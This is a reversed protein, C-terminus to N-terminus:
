FQSRLGGKSKGIHVPLASKKAEPATARKVPKRFLIRGDPATAPPADAEVTKNPKAAASPATKPLGLAGSSGSVAASVDNTQFMAPAAAVLWRPDIKSVNRIFEDTTVVSAHFVVWDPSKGVHCFVSTPHLQVVRADRVTRYVGNGDLRAANAFYGATFCERIRTRTDSDSRDLADRDSASLAFRQVYRTLQKRVELARTLARHSLMHEDCWDRRRDNEIFADLVALHTLHDGDPDAFEGMAEVLRAKREVSGRASVFVDGVSLVSAISVIEDVVGFTVSTLLVKALMPEVPFEALHTGMPEIMHCSADIAGLAYLQELARILAEPAPPSVFAFHAIDQIGMSLLHLVVRTLDTRQIAPLTENPLESTYYAQTCLRFCKGPRTRGARGARQKAAAKSIPATVLAEVGTLPNYVALKAFCADVVFAVNDITVSTEAITTAVVVKRRVGRPSPLFVRQQMALPLAAYLPLPAIHDGARDNLARVVHDIDDQGPLFVLVDGDASEHADVALVTAIAQERYDSCPSTLYEIDVPFQRGEVSVAVVDNLVRADSDAADRKRKSKKSRFFRVFTDVHLTASAIM